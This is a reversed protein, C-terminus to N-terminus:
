SVTASCTAPSSSRSYECLLVQIMLVFLLELFDHWTNGVVANRTAVDHKVGVLISVAACLLTLDKNELGKESAKEGTWRGRTNKLGGRM